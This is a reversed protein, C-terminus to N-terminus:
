YGRIQSTESPIIHVNRLAELTLEGKKDKEWTWVVYRVGDLAHNFKDLPVRDLIIGNKDAKWKYNNLEKQINTSRPTVHINFRKVVDIGLAVSDKGKEVPYINFRGGRRQYQYFEQIYSPSSSDAYLGPTGPPLLRDCLSIFESNLLRSQYVVEDIWLDFGRRYVGVCVNPDPDFGFDIGYTPTLGPPVDQIDWKPYILGHLRIPLGLAIKNYLEPDQRRLDEFAEIDQESLFQNDKFTTHLHYINGAKRPTGDSNFFYPETWNGATRNFSLIRQKIDEGKGRISFTLTSWDDSNLETAEEIWAVDVSALSKIKTAVDLGKAIFESGNSVRISLPSSLFTFYKDLSWQSVVDQIEKFQSDRITDFVKRVLVIRCKRSLAELVLRQAAARSKGSGRSGDHVVLPKRTIPNGSVFSLFIKNISNKPVTVTTMKHIKTNYSKAACM